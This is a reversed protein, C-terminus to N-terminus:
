NEIGSEIELEISQVKCTKKWFAVGYLRVHKVGSALFVDRYSKEEIQKLANECMSPINKQEKAHKIEIVIGITGDNKTILLDCRGDGAERNSKVSWDACGILIGTLFGHYYSEYDDFYSITTRLQNQLVEEIAGCDGDFFARYLRVLENRISTENLQEAFWDRIKEIFIERVELNPIVLEDLKSRADKPAQTRTLYGTLFLVGWLNDISKGLEGYTLTENVAKAVPKGAVLDEIESRTTSDAMGVFLKVMENSSTNNWYSKPEIGPDVRLESVHNVIDWPCYVDTSGFRYGNYWKRLDDYAFSLSYDELLKRVESDTFGFHEGHLKNTITNIKLNNVGTFISEKSIRLCGTVVAFELAENTKFAEGLFIRMFDVMDDYYGNHFAKDLPVDYEDVLLIAKQGYHKKLMSSLFKLSDELQQRTATQTKLATFDCCNDQDIMQSEELFALRDCEYSVQSAVRRMADDFTRGQVSKLSLFVVPYRNMYRDCISQEKMIDLGYFIDRHDAGAEFFAKLMTMNLTKGFRRPRTFLNVTGCNLLLDRIFNTKDVYYCDQKRLSEFIDAGVPLRQNM